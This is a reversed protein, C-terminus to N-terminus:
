NPNCYLKDVRRTKDVYDSGSITRDDFSRREISESVDGSDYTTTIFLGICTGNNGANNITLNNPNEPKFCTESGRTIVGNERAADCNYCFLADASITGLLLWLMNSHGM